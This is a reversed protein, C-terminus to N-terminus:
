ILTYLYKKLQSDLLFRKDELKKSQKRLCNKVFAELARLTVPRLTEFDIEIEDPKTDKLLPEHKQTISVVKCLKEKPLRNIDLSLKRKEDYSMKQDEESKEAEETSSLRSKQIPL